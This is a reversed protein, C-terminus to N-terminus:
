RQDPLDVGVYPEAIYEQVDVLIEGVEDIPICEWRLFRGRAL